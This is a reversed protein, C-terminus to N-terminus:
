KLSLPTNEGFLPRNSASAPVIVIRDNTGIRDRFYKDIVIQIQVYQFAKGNKAMMPLFLGSLDLVINM